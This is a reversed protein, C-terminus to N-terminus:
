MQIELFVSHVVPGNDETARRRGGQLLYHLSFIHTIFIIWRRKWLITCYKVCVEEIVDSLTNLWFSASFFGGLHLFRSHFSQTSISKFKSEWQPSSVGQSSLFFVKLPVLSSLVLSHKEVSNFDSCMTLRSVASLTLLRAWHWSPQVPAQVVSRRIHLGCKAVSGGRLGRQM